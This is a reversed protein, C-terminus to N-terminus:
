YLNNIVCKWVLVLVSCLHNYYKLLIRTWVVIRTIWYSLMQSADFETWLPELDRQRFVIFRSYFKDSDILHEQREQHSIIILVM